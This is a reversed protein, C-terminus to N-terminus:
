KGVVPLRIYSTYLSNRYISVIPPHEDQIFFIKKCACTITVRIRNGKKFVHSMPMMDIQLRYEKNPCMKHEDEKNWRHYPLGM